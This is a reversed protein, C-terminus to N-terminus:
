YTALWLTPSLLSIAFLLLEGRSFTTVVSAWYHTAWYRAPDISLDAATPAPALLLIVLGGLWFPMTAFVLGHVFEYLAGLFNSANCRFLTGILWLSSLWNGFAALNENSRERTRALWQRWM